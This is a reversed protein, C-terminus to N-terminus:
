SVNTYLNKHLGISKNEKSLYRFNVSDYPLKHKVKFSISLSDGLTRYLKVNKAGTCSLELEEVCKSVRSIM